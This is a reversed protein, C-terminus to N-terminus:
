TLCTTIVPTFETTPSQRSRSLSVVRFSFEASITSISACSTSSSDESGDICHLSFSLMAVAESSPSPQIPATPKSRKIVSPLAGSVSDNITSAITATEAGSASIRTPQITKCRELRRSCRRKEFVTSANRRSSCRRPVASPETDALSLALRAAILSCLSASERMPSPVDSRSLAVVSTIWPSISVM